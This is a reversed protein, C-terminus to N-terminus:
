SCSFPKPRLRLRHHPLPPTFLIPTSHMFVHAIKRSGKANAINTWSICACLELLVAGHPKPTPRQLLLCAGVRQARSVLEGEWAAELVDLLWLKVCYFASCLCFHTAAGFVRFASPFQQPSPRRSWSLLQLLQLSTSPFPPRLSAPFNSLSRLVCM